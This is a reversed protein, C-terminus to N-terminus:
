RASQNYKRTSIVFLAIFAVVAEACHETMWQVFHELHDIIYDGFLLDYFVLASTTMVLVTLIKKKWSKAKGYQILEELLSQFESSFGRFFERLSTPRSETSLADDDDDDGGIYGVSADLATQYNNDNYNNDKTQNVVSTVFGYDYYNNYEEQDNTRLDVPPQSLSSTGRFTFSNSDNEIDFQNKMIADALRTTGTPPAPATGSEDDLPPKRDTTELVVAIQDDQEM